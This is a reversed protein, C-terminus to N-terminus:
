VQTRAFFMMIKQWPMIHKQMSKTQELYAQFPKYPSHDKADRMIDIRILHGCHTAIQQSVSALRHM